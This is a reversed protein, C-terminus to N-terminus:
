KLKYYIVGIIGIIVSSIIIRNLKKNEKELFSISKKLEIIDINNITINDVILNNLYSDFDIIKKDIIENHEKIENVIKFIFEVDCEINNLSKNIFENDKILNHILYINHFNQSGSSTNKIIAVNTGIYDHFYNYYNERTNCGYGIKIDYEINIFSKIIETNDHTIQTNNFSNIRLNRDYYKFNLRDFLYIKFNKIIYNRLDINDIIINIKNFYDIIDKINIDLCKNIEKNEEFFLKLNEEIKNKYEEDNPNIIIAM